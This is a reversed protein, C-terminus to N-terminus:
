IPSNYFFILIILAFHSGFSVSAERVRCAILAYSEMMLHLLSVGSCFIKVPVMLMLSRELCAFGYSFMNSIGVSKRGPSPISSDLTVEPCLAVYCAVEGTLLKLAKEGKSESELGSEM